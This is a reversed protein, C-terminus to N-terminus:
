VRGQSSWGAKHLMDIGDLLLDLAFAFEAGDDCAVGAQPSTTVMRVISPYTQAFDEMAEERENPDEPPEPTPLVDRTFGWMRTSLAHMAHHVLDPSLGGDFMSAMLSDMHALVNPSAHDRSEIADRAWPHALLAGRTALIRTRVDDVWRNSRSTEPIDDLVRDLMLDVLQSRSDIHKYLAMPTVQLREAVARMSAGDLGHEDALDIAALVLRQRDLRPRTSDTSMHVGYM